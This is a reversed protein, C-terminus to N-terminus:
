GGNKGEVIKDTFEKMWREPMQWDEGLSQFGLINEEETEYFEPRAPTEPRNPEQRFAAYEGFNDSTIRDLLDSIIKDKRATEISHKYESWLLFGISAAALIIYPISELPFIAM